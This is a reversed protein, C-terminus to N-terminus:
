AAASEIAESKKTETSGMKQCKLVSLIDDMSEYIPMIVITGGAVWGWMLAVAAWLQFTSKGFAGFPICALPWAVCLFFTYGWGWKFIWDKAAKLAEPTADWDDGLVKANEGGDGGVLTIKENFINWDFNMPAVLCGLCSIVLSSMLATLGGYLQAYLNGLTDISIGGELSGAYIMWVMVACACGGFAALMACKPGLKDTYIACAIPVVASGLAIAMFNYVWGLGIDMEKLVISALAMIIAWVCVFFRSVWLIEKGTAAPRFYTRFVDYSMLSSVAIMEASGTSLIAMTLQVM